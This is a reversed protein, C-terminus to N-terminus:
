LLRRYRRLVVIVSGLAIAVIVLLSAWPEFGAQEPIWQRSNVDLIWDAVYRPHHNISLLGFVDFEAEVLGRTVGSIIFMIALFIGAAFSQKAAFSSILFALPAFAVLYVVSVLAVQWMLDLDDIISDLFGDSSVAANGIILLLQPIILFGFVVTALSAARAGLYDVVRLPRSAYVALTGSTRDPLLLESAALAVFLLTVTANFSFYEAAGFFNEDDEILDGTLFGFAVFFAAPALAVVALLVPLIKRRAKRRLGVVRRLGDRYVARTAGKRGFREGDYPQYGLDFVVGSKDTM